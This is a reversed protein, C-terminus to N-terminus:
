CKVEAQALKAGLSVAVIVTVPVFVRDCSVNCEKATHIGYFMAVASPLVVMARLDKRINEVCAHEASGWDAMLISPYRTATERVARTTEIQFLETTFSRVNKPVVRERRIDHRSQRSQPADPWM